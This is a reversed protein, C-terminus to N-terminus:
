GSIRLICDLPNESLELPTQSNELASQANNQHNQTASACTATTAIERPSGQERLGAQVVVEPVLLRWM